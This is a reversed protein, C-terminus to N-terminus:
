EEAQGEEESEEELPEEPECYEPHKEWFAVFAEEIQEAKAPGIGGLGTFAGFENVWDTLDGITKLQPENQEVITEVIANALGLESLPLDRWEVNGEPESDEMGPLRQQLDPGQHILARLAEDAAEFVKKAASAASKADDAVRALVEVKREDKCIKQYHKQECQTYVTPEIVPEATEPEPETVDTKDTM